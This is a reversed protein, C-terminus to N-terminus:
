YATTSYFIENGKRLLYIIWTIVGYHGVKLLITMCKFPRPFHKTLM